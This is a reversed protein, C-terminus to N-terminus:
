SPAAPPFTVLIARVTAEDIDAWRKYADAVAFRHGVRVNPCYFAEVSAAITRASPEHATPVAVSISAAGTARLAAVATRLTYGSALGDDVLVVGSGNVAAYSRDERLAANRRAVKERTRAVGAKVEAESLGIERVLADNLQVSGDYAVAGYGAETNRALTIKSVVGLDLPLALRQAIPAAVPVGGAPIALVMAHPSRDFSPALMDALVAGAHERDRFM